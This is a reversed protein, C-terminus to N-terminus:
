LKVLYGIRPYLLYGYGSAEAKLYRYGERRTPDGKFVPVIENWKMM